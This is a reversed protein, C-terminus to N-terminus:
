PKKVIGAQARRVAEAAWPKGGYLEIVAQRITRARRPDTADLKDAQDLRDQILALHDPATQQLRERLKALRRRALELCQGTPGSIDKRSQYLDLLAQLKAIGQEPNLRAYNIAELYDIEVPLLTEISDVGRAHLEFKRERRNLDIERLYEYLQDCRSDDSYRMVFERMDAEAALYADITSNSTKATIREFLADASPPRLLYWATLGMTILAAALVWTHWSILARPTEEELRDLDEEAVAVFRDPAKAADGAAPEPSSPAAAAAQHGRFASTAKTAPLEADLAPRHEETAPPESPAHITRTPPPLAVGPRTAEVTPGLGDFDPSEEQPAPPSSETSRSLAHLMAELRRSLLTANAIRAEPDKRLLQQIIDEMEAPADPAYHRVPEPEAHRQMDLLEALSKGKFPPRGALLAYMVGGLSYLDTRPGLPRSDAQEPALFEVTGLVNGAATLRTNGFLRAIGFDSLKVQGNSALLLNAPKLDRHIVGRDHAHRLARCVEIAIQAVERWTFRRGRRLEDELSDGEVLEMVYYLQGEQEGFGFLRVINPHRLMRLAEIEVEFRQRFDAERALAPALVKIAAREGTEVNVAEYVTGMGGHGLPRVIRYPGLREPQM